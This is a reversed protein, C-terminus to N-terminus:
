PKTLFVAPTVIPGLKLDLIKVINIYMKPPETVLTQVIKSKCTKPYSYSTGTNYSFNILFVNKQKM